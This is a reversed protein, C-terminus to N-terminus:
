ASKKRWRSSEPTEQHCNSAVKRNRRLKRRRKAKMKAKM